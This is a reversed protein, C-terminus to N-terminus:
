HKRTRFDHRLMRVATGREDSRVIRGRVLLKLPCGHDLLRPWDLALDIEGSSPLPDKTEFLIGGTSINLTRGSGLCTIQREDALNYRLDLAIPYRQHLRRELRLNKLLPGHHALISAPSMKEKGEIEPHSPSYYRTQQSFDIVLERKNSHGKPRTGM